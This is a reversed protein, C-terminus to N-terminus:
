RVERYRLGGSEIWEEQPAEQGRLQPINYDTAIRGQTRRAYELADRLKTAVKEPTDNAKPLFQNIREKESESVASGSLEKIINSANRFVAIRAAQEQPNLGSEQMETYIKSLTGGQWQEPMYYAGGIMKSFAGPNEEVQRIIEPIEGAVSEASTFSRQVDTPLNKIAAVRQEVTFPDPAAEQEMTPQEVVRPVEQQAPVQAVSQPTLPLTRREGSPLIRTIEQRRKDMLWAGGTPDPVISTHGYSPAQANQMATDYQEQTIRGAALEANLKGINTLPSKPGLASMVSAGHGARIAPAYQPYAAAMQETAEQQRQQAGLKAQMMRMQLDALQAARAQEAALRDQEQLGQQAQMLGLGLGGLGQRHPDSAAMIAAGARTWPNQLWQNIDFAM